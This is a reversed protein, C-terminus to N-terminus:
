HIFEFTAIPIVCVHASPGFVVRLFTCYTCTVKQQLKTLITYTFADLPITTSQRTSLLNTGFEGGEVSQSTFGEVGLGERDGGMLVAKVCAWDELVLSLAKQAFKPPHLDCVPRSDDHHKSISRTLQRGSWHAQEKAQRAVMSALMGLLHEQSSNVKTGLSTQGLLKVLLSKREYDSSPALAKCKCMEWCDCYATPSVRKFSCDHGRHCTYACETCCCLSGTLGCTRCEFIDQNLFPHFMLLDCFVANSDETYCECCSYVHIHM